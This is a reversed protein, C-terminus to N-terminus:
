ERWQSRVGRQRLSVRRTRGAVAVCCACGIKSGAAVRLQGGATRPSASGERVPSGGGRLDVEGEGLQLLDLRLRPVDARHGDDRVDGRCTETLDSHIQRIFNAFYTFYFDNNPSPSQSQVLKTAAPQSPNRRQLPARRLAKERRRCGLSTPHNSSPLRLSRGGVVRVRARSRSSNPGSCGAWCRSMESCRPFPQLLWAPPVGHAVVEDCLLLLRAERPQDDHGARTSRHSVVVPRLGAWCLAPPSAYWLFRSSLPLPSFTSSRKCKRRLM